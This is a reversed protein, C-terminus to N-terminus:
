IVLICLFFKISLRLILFGFLLSFLNLLGFDVGCSVSVIWCVVSLCLKIIFFFLWLLEMIWKKGGIMMENLCSLKVNCMSLFVIRVVFLLLFFGLCILWFYFFCKIWVFWMFLWFNECIIFWVVVVIFVM